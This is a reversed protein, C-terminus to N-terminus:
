KLSLYFVGDKFAAKSEEYSQAFEALDREIYANILALEDRTLDSTANLYAETTEVAKNIQHEGTQLDRTFREIFAQYYKTWKSM